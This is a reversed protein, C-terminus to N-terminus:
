VVVGGASANSSRLGLRVQAYGLPTWLMNERSPSQPNSHWPQTLKCRWTNAYEVDDCLQGAVDRMSRSRTRREFSDRGLHGPEYPEGTSNYVFIRFSPLYTPVVPPAVNVVGYNDHDLNEYKPLDSFEQMLTKYLEKKKGKLTAAEHNSASTMNRPHALQEADLLFFKTPTLISTRRSCIARASVHDMNM